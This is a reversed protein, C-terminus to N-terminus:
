DQKSASLARGTAANDPAMIKMTPMELLPLLVPNFGGRIAMSTAHERIYPYLIMPANNEAWHEVQDLPFRSADVSFVGLLEVELSYPGAGGDEGEDGVQVRVKVHITSDDQDYASHATELIFGEPKTTPDVGFKAHLNLTVVKLARLQIAHLPWKQPGSKITKESM